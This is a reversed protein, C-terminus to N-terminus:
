PDLCLDVVVVFWSGLCGKLELCGMFYVWGGFGVQVRPSPAVVLGKSLFCM